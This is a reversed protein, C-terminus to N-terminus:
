IHTLFHTHSLSPSLTHTHTHSLSLTYTDTYTLSLSHTHIHTYTHTHTHSLSLTYKYTHSLTHTHSPSLPHIYTHTLSLSLTHIHTLSLSHIYTHTHSLSLTHIHTHTHTFQSLTHIHTHTHTHTFQSLTHIHTHSLTHTHTHSLSLTHIHTQSLTHKHMHTHTHTHTRTSVTGLTVTQTAGPNRRFHQSATATTRDATASDSRFHHVNRIDLTANYLLLRQVSSSRRAKIFTHHSCRGVNPGFNRTMQSAFTLISSAAKHWSLQDTSPLIRCKTIQKHWISPRSLASGWYPPVHCVCCHCHYHNDTSWSWANLQNRVAAFRVAAHLLERTGETVSHAQQMNRCCNHGDETLHITFPINCFKPVVCLHVISLELIRPKFICSHLILFIYKLIYINNLCDSLHLKHSPWGYVFNLTWTVFSSVARQTQSM